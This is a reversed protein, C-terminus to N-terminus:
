VAVGTIDNDLDKIEIIVNPPVSLYRGDKSLNDTISFQSSSYGAGFKQSITVNKTDVVGNVANLTKYVDTLYFPEGINLKEKLSSKLSTLCDNLIINTDKSLETVVEFNLSVNIITADLIDITDNLMKYKSIWSKLNQKLSDSALSLEGLYNSSVLYLNINRRSSDKDQVIAVRKVTGFSSPMRYCLAAYDNRTVARNQTAFAGFARNRIEENTLIDSSGVIPEENEVEIESILSLAETKSYASSRFDLIANTVNNIAGVASNVSDATNVRYLITLTTNSPSIGLSETKNIVNPDFIKDSFYNKGYFQLTVDSPDPFNNEKFEEESGGGFQLYCDGNQDFETIFRRFTQFEKLFYPVETSDSSTNKIEKYIIDQTLYDVEFYENGVSDFVSIIESIREDDIKIKLFQQYESITIEKQKIEGSIIRGYARYSYSTTVGNSNESIPIKETTPAAFNIDEQLIYSAGSDSSITTGKKLIPILDTNEQGGNTQAPIVVYFRAIGSSSPSGTFKYGLQKAIKILNNKEVATELFSENTQYDVYYSMVDGIYAVLDFMLSGFSAENFDKYTDPYYVKVYNMLDNRISNFDRSTYSIPPKTKPM